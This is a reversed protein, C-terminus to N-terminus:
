PCGCRHSDRHIRDVGLLDSAQEFDRHPLEGRMVREAAEGIAGDDHPVLGRGLHWYVYVAAVLLVAGLAVWYRSASRADSATGDVSPTADVVPRDLQIALQPL